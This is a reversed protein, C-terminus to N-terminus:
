IVLQPYREEALEQLCPLHYDPFVTASPDYSGLVRKALAVKICKPQGM